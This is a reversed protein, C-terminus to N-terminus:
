LRELEITMDIHRVQINPPLKLHLPAFNFISKIGAAVLAEAAKQAVEEPVTLIAMQINKSKVIGAIDGLPYVKVGNVVKGTKATDADVAAVIEFGQERFGKYRLLAAGFIESAWWCFRGSNIM